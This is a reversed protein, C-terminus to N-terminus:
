EQKSIEHKKLLQYINEIKRETLMIQKENNSSRLVANQGNLEALEFKQDVLKRLDPIESPRANLEDKFAQLQKVFDAKQRDMLGNFEKRMSDMQRNTANISEEFIKNKQEFEMDNIMCSTDSQMGSFDWKLSDFETRFDGLAYRFEKLSSSCNQSMESLFANTDVEFIHHNADLDKLATNILEIKNLIDQLSKNTENKFDGEHKIEQHAKYNDMSVGQPKKYLAM